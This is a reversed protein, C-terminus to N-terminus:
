ILDKVINWTKGNYDYSLRRNAMELYDSNTLNASKKVHIELRSLDKKKVGVHIMGEISIYGGYVSITSALFLGLADMGGYWDLREVPSNIFSGKDSRIAVSKRIIVRKLSECNTFADREIIRVSEPIDVSHLANCEKFASDRIRSVVYERGKYIIKSPIVLDVLPAVNVPYLIYDPLSDAQCSEGNFTIIFRTHDGIKQETVKCLSIPIKTERMEGILFGPSTCEKRSLYAANNKDDLEYYLGNLEIINTVNSVDWKSIDGNFCSGDFMGVMNEVSSVDWKSIDGNFDSFEFMCEMNTVNSVDWNSIDGNFESEKFLYSMDTVQSVDIHNLDANNGLRAIESKVIEKITENTAIITKAM